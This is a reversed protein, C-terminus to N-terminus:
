GTAQAIQAGTWTTGWDLTTFSYLAPSVYAPPTGNDWGVYSPFTVAFAGSIHVLVTCGQPGSTPVFPVQVATDGALLLRFGGHESDLLFVGSVERYVTQYTATTSEPGEPGEPGPPGEPGAPGPVTSPDGEPGAPGPIGPEGQPGAPGPVTSPAGAPGTEGPPGVPGVPGPVTSDAGPEGQPGPPGTLGPEGQPGPPGGPDGPPGQEGPAGDAGPPGVISMVPDSPDSDVVDAADLDTGEPLAAIWNGEADLPVSAPGTMIIGLEPHRIVCNPTVTVLGKHAGGDLGTMREQGHFHFRPVLTM